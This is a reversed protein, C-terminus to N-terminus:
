HQRSNIDREAKSLALIAKCVADSLKRNDGRLLTMADQKLIAIAEDDPIPTNDIQM